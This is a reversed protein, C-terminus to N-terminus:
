IFRTLSTTFSGHVSYNQQETCLCSLQSAALLFSIPNKIPNSTGHPTEMNSNQEETADREAVIPQRREDGSTEAPKGAKDRNQGGDRGGTTRRKQRGTQPETLRIESNSGARQQIPSRTRNSLGPWQRAHIFDNFDNSKCNGPVGAGLTEREGSHQWPPSVHRLM